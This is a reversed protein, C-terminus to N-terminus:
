CTKKRYGIKMATESPKIAARERIEKITKEDKRMLKAVSLAMSTLVTWVVLGSVLKINTLKRLIKLVNPVKRRILRSHTQKGNKGKVVHLDIHRGGCGKFNENFAEFFNGIGAGFTPFRMGKGGNQGKDQKSQKGVDRGQRFNM